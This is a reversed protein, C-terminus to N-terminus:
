TDFLVGRDEERGRGGPIRENKINKREAFLARFFLLHKFKM